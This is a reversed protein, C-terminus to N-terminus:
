IRRLRTFMLCFLTMVIIFMISLAASYGADFYNLAQRFIYNPLMETAIGPGGDTMVYITDFVKFADIFRMLLIVILLGRIEPLVIHWFVSFPKAGDLMASHVTETSLGKIGSVVIITVWPVLQWINVFSIAAFATLPRALWPVRGLGVLSTLYNIVGTSSDLLMRWMTGAAVPAMIMPIMFISRFFREFKSEGSVLMAIAIGLVVELFVSLIAFVFTNIVTRLFDAETFMRAYNVLGTFQIPTNPRNIKYNCFSLGLSYLIPIIGTVLLFLASPLLFLLTIFRNSGIRKNM